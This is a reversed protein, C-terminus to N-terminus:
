CNGNYDNIYVEYKRNKTILALKNVDGFIYRKGNYRM